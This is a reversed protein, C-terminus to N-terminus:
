RFSLLDQESSIPALAFKVDKGDLRNQLLVFGIVLAMLILPFAFR